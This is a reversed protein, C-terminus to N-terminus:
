EVYRQWSTMLKNISTTYFALTRSKSVLARHQGMEVGEGCAGLHFMFLKFLILSHFKAKDVFSVPCRSMLYFNTWAINRCCRSSLLKWLVFQQCYFRFSVIFSHTKRSLNYIFNIIEASSVSKLQRRWYLYIRGAVRPLFLSQFAIFVNYVPSYKLVPQLRHARM